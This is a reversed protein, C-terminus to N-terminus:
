SEAAEVFAALLDMTSIMGAVHQQEDLVVLRHIRNRLMERAAHQVSGTIEVTFAECSMWDKVHDTLIEAHELQKVLIAHSLGGSESLLGLEDSLDKAVRLLDTVSIVGVCHKTADIVPLASVRNDVMLTLAERLTAEPQICVVHSSLVDKIPIPNKSIVTSGIHRFSPTQLYGRAVVCATRNPRPPSGDQCVKSTSWVKLVM